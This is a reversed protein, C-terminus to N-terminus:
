YGISMTTYYGDPSDVMSLTVYGRSDGGYWSVVMGDRYVPSGYIRRLSNYVMDYRSTDYYRTHYVFQANVLRNYDYNLMVDPWYLSLMPVDRLYIIGDAYGDIYYGSYYLHDLSADYLSGFVLGLIRDIVPAGAYPHWGVPITPRYWVWPAPRYPRVPPPLPRSWSHHSYNWSFADRHPHSNYDYRHDPGYGRGGHKGDHHGGGPKGDHHGGGPKGGNDPKGGGPKGGNDHKGGNGPKVGDSRNDRKTTAEPKTMTRENNDRPAVNTSHTISSNDGGRTMAGHGTRSGSSSTAPTTTKETRVATSQRSSRDSSTSTSSSRNVQPTASSRTTSTSSSRNVQPTASSRTTSTSSSRKVQPTASSRSASHDRSMTPASTNSSRSVAASQSRSSTSGGQSRSRGQASADSASFIMCGMLAFSMM